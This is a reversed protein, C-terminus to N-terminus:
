SFGAERLDALLRELQEGRAMPYTQSWAELSFDPEIGLVEMAEWEADETRSLHLLTAALYLHCEVNEPNRSLAEGLNIQALEYDGMFYYARAILLFYLYGADPNLRMADRLLQISERPNERYTEIGGLLAYADAFRPSIEIALSLHTEAESFNRQQTLVYGIVWHQEPLESSIGIATQAFKMASELAADGDDGWGNRYDAAYSLALGGYARAFSEDAAIARRYLDRAVSNTEATRVLLQSQAKLFLDYATVNETYGRARRSKEEADISGAIEALMTERIEDEIALLDDFDREFELARLVEGNEGDLLRAVVRLSKGVHAVSGQLVYNAPSSPITGELMQRVSLDSQRALDNLITESIGLALYDQGPDGSVNAFPTVVIITSTEADSAHQEATEESPYALFLVVGIVTLLVALVALLRGHSRSLNPEASSVSAASQDAAGTGIPSILRYGRKPITEIHTPNRADDGLARRIKIIAATLSDDGVHVGPWVADLLEERSVVDGHREVLYLLVAMSKPELHSVGTEDRIEGTETQILANGLRLDPM